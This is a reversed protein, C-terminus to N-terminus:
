AMRKRQEDVRGRPRLNSAHLPCARLRHRGDVVRGRHTWVPELQGHSSIDAKLRAFEEEAMPPFLTALPDIELDKGNRISM